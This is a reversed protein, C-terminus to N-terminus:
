SALKENSSAIKGHGGHYFLFLYEQSKSLLNRNTDTGVARGNAAIKKLHQRASARLM